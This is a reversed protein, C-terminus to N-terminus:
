KSEVSGIDLAAVAHQWAPDGPYLQSRLYAWAMARLVAVRAPNEDSTEAADYGSIGGLIHEAGHMMLLTKPGPALTYADWRYSLRTSFRPNLDRDGAVVLAPATMTSFDTFKNVPYRDLMEQNTHEDAVGPAALIVGAKIRADPLHVRSGDAPDATRMGLLMAATHGGLSHGVVAVRRRDLRTRGSPGRGTMFASRGLGPVAAEIEDLHDLIFSMDQARTKWFLPAEPHDTDRLGLVTSDLHTPQIVVFGHATWFDVLPGYGRLSSLFNSAGHGHSMLIIPLNGGVAPVNVKIELPVPRGPVEFAIPGFTLVQNPESVPINGADAYSTLTVTGRGHPGTPSAQAPEAVAASAAIAATGILAARRTFTGNRPKSCEEICPATDCM